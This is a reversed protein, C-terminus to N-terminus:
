EVVSTVEVSRETRCAEGAALAVQTAAVGDDMTVPSIEGNRVCAVFRTLEALYAGGFREPFYPVTDHTVANETLRVVPTERLYGVRLAGKPGLLETSIDYGYVGRRALDVVGLAGSTFTLTIVATDIDGLEAFEPYSLVGGVAHVMRVPGMFWLALDLDHIGMDMILGGSTKPEAYQLSPRYPDRSTSKFLVPVGIACRGTHPPTGWTSGGCSALSSISARAM